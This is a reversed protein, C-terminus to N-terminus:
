NSTVHNNVVDRCVPCTGSRHLWSDLCTKHFLHACPMKIITNDGFKDICIPCNDDRNYVDVPLLLARGEESIQHSLVPDDPPGFLGLILDTIYRESAQDVERTVSRRLNPMIPPFSFTFPTESWYFSSSGNSYYCRCNTSFCRDCVPNTNATLSGECLVCDVNVDSNFYGCYQCNVPDVM